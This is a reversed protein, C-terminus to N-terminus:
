KVIFVAVKGCLKNVKNMFQAPLTRCLVYMPHFETKKIREDGKKWGGALMMRVANTRAAFPLRIFLLLVSSIFRCHLASIHISIHIINEVGPQSWAVRIETFKERIQKVEEAVEEERDRLFFHTLKLQCKKGNVAAMEHQHRHCSKERRGRRGM